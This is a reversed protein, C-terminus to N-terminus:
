TQRKRYEIQQTPCTPSSPNRANKTKRPPVSQHYLQCKAYPYSITLVVQGMEVRTRFDGAIAATGGM